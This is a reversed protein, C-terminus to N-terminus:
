AYTSMKEYATKSVSLKAYNRPTTIVRFNIIVFSTLLISVLLYSHWLKLNKDIEVM